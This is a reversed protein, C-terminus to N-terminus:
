RMFNPISEGRRLDERTERSRIVYFADDKVLVEPVRPRSCIPGVVDSRLDERKRLGVPRIEHYSNYLCPRTLDNMVADTIVFRKDANSKTYLVKCVLISANGVIMRGPEFILTCDIYRASDMIAKAYAEPNPPTEQDYTIGLGGGLTNAIKISHLNHLFSSRPQKLFLSAGRPLGRPIKCLPNIFFWCYVKLM